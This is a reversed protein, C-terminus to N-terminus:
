ADTDTADERVNDEVCQLKVSLTRVLEGAAQLENPHMNKTSHQQKTKSSSDRQSPM